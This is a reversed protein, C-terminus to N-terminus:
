KTFLEEEKETLYRCEGDNLSEDLYIGAFSIRKLYTIKNGLSGFIRKIEHYKGEVLTIVGQKEGTLKVKCPMTTYGDKLTVGKEIKLVDDQTVIEATNFIYEKEAHTKPALRRHASQGDNTLIVLGLTDKDLRGCPFLGDRKMSDPIIDVVTTQGGEDTSSVVGLPKNLMIYVFKKLTLKEGNLLIEDRQIDVKLSPSKVREGNVVVKGKKILALCESRTSVGCSSFVKDLRELM